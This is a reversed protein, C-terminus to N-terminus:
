IALEPSPVYPEGRFHVVNNFAPGVATNTNECADQTKKCGPYATFTDSVAPVSRLATAMQFVGPAYSKVTYSLGSLAGSTFTITGLTFYNAVQTLACNVVKNTSGSAVASTVAFSAKVLACKSDFLTNRCGPQFRAVPLQKGLYVRDDHAILKAHTRGMEEVRGIKGTFKNIVGLSTDGATTMYLTDVVLRAGDLAGQRIATLWPISGLLDTLKAYVTFNFDSVAVGIANEFSGREIVIGKADYTNAAYLLSGSPTDAMAIRVVSADALTFTYLDALLFKQGGSLAAILGASASKM